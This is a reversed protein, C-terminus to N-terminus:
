LNHVKKQAGVNGLLNEIRQQMQQANVKESVKNVANILEEIYGTEFYLRL